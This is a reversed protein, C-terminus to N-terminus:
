RGRSLLFELPVDLRRGWDTETHDAGEFVQSRFNGESYGAARFLADIRQQPGAYAADFGRTGHDFYVRHARPAPVHAKVYAVFAAPIDANPKLLTGTWHTSLCAAGGFTEPYECLAYLSILGGMSSGGVFTSEHGPLTPFYQDVYPKLEEVLFRLYADACFKPEAVGDPVPPTLTAAFNAGHTRVLEQWPKQPFYEAFRAYGTNWIGVIICPPIKGEDILRQAVVDVGWMQHNWTLSRDFLAQGDQLYVVPYRRKADFHDPLWVDIPRDAVYRSHLAAIRRVAGHAVVPLAPAAAMADRMLVLLPAMFLLRRFLAHRM